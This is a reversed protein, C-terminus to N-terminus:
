RSRIITKIKQTNSLKTSITIIYNVNNGIANDVIQNLDEDYDAFDLHCHTDILFKYSKIKNNM